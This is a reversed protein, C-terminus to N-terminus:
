SIKRQNFSRKFIIIKKSVTSIYSRGSELEWFESTPDFPNIKLSFYNWGGGVGGVRLITKGKQHIKIYYM